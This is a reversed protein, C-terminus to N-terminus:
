PVIAAAGVNAGVCAILLDNPLLASKRLAHHHDKTIFEVDNDTLIGDLVNRAGYYKAFGTPFTKPNGHEGDTIFAISGLKTTGKKNLTELLNFYKKQFFESEIRGNFENNLLSNSLPIISIELQHLLSNYKAENFRM